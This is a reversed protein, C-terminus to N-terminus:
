VIPAEKKLKKWFRIVIVIYIFVLIVVQVIFRIVSSLNYLGGINDVPNGLSLGSWDFSLIVMFIIFIGTGSVAAGRILWTHNRIKKIEKKKQKSFSKTWSTASVLRILLYVNFYVLLIAFLIIGALASSQILVESQRYWTDVNKNDLFAKLVIYQISLSGGMLSGKVIGELYARKPSRTEINDIGM